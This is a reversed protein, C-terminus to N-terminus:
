GAGSERGSGVVGSVGGVGALTAIGVGVELGGDLFRTLRM